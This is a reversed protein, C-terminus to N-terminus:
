VLLIRSMESEINLPHTKFFPVKSIYLPRYRQFSCSNLITSSTPGMNNKKKLSPGVEEVIKFKQQM